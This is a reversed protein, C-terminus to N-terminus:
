AGDGSDGNAGGSDRDECGCEEVEATTLRTTRRMLGHRLVGVVRVHAVHGRVGLRLVHCHDRTVVTAGETARGVQGCRQWTVHGGM